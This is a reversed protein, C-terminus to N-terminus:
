RGVRELVYVVPDGPRDLVAQWGDESLRFWTFGRRGAMVPEFRVTDGSIWDVRTEVNGRRQKSIVGNRLEITSVGDPTAFTSDPFTRQELTSDNLVRYEEYFASFGGGSGVWRGALWSLGAMSTRDFPATDRQQAAVPAAPALLGLISALSLAARRANTM